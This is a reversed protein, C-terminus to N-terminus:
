RLDIKSFFTEVLDVTYFGEGDKEKRAWRSREDIDEWTGWRRGIEAAYTCVLAVHKGAEAYRGYKQCEPNDPKGIMHLQRKWHSMSRIRGRSELEVESSEGDGGGKGEARGGEDEKM